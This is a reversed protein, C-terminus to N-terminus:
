IFFSFIQTIQSIQPYFKETPRDTPRDKRDKGRPHRLNAAGVVYRIARFHYASRFVCYPWNLFGNLGRDM